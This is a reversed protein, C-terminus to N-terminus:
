GNKSGNTMRSVQSYRTERPIIEKRQNYKYVLIIANFFGKATSEKKLLFKELHVPIVNELSTKMMDEILDNNAM